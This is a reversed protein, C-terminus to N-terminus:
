FKEHKDSANRECARRIIQRREKKEAVKDVKYAIKDGDGEDKDAIKDGDGEDEVRLDVRRDHAFRRGLLVRRESVGQYACRCTDPTPCNPLPISPVDSGFQFVEDMMRISPRCNCRVIRVAHIKSKAQIIKLAASQAISHSTKYDEKVEESKVEESTTDSQAKKKSFPWVM